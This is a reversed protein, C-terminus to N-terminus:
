QITPLETSCDLGVSSRFLLLQQGKADLGWYFDYPHSADVRRARLKGMLSQAEIGGWPDSQERM